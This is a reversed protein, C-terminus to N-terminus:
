RGGGDKAHATLYGLIAGREADTLHARPAMRGVMEAWRAATLSEPPYARHCASCKSRYLREGDSAVGGSSPAGACAELVIAAAAAAAVAALIPRM